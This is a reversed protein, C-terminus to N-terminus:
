SAESVGWGGPPKSEMGRYETPSSQSFLCARFVERGSKVSPSAIAVDTLRAVFFSIGAITNPHVVQRIALPSWYSPPIQTKTAGPDLLISGLLGM